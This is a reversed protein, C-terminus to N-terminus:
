KSGLLEKVVASVVQGPAKGKDLRKSLEGMVKGMAGKVPIIQKGEGSLGLEQIVQQVIQMIEERTMEKPLFKKILEIQEDEKAALDERPSPKAARYQAAAEQRKTVAKQLISIISPQPSKSDSASAQKEAYQFESLLARFVGSANADKAKMSNKLESKLLALLDADGNTSSGRSEM